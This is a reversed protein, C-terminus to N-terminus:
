KPEIEFTVTVTSWATLVFTDAQTRVRGDPDLTLHKTAEGWATATTDRVDMPLGAHGGLVSLLGTAREKASQAAKTRAEAEFAAAGAHLFAVTMAPQAGAKVLSTLLADATDIAGVEVQLSRTLQHAVIENGRYEPVPSGPLLRIKAPDIKAEVCLEWLRKAKEDGHKIATAVDRGSAVFSLTALLHSPRFTVKAEGALAIQHLHQTTPASALTAALLLSIM